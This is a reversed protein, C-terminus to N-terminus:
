RASLMSGIGDAGGELVVAPLPLHRDMEARRGVLGRQARLNREGGALGCGRRQRELRHRLDVPHRFAQGAQPRHAGAAEEHMARVVAGRTLGFSMPMSISAASAKPVPWWPVVRPQRSASSARAFRRRARRMRSM